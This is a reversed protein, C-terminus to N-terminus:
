FFEAKLPLAAAGIASADGAIESILMRAVRRPVGYRPRNYFVTRLIFSEALARPLEGGLLIAQPEVIACISNILSNCAPTM